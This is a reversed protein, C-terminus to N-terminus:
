AWCRCGAAPEWGAGGDAFAGSESLSSEDSLKGRDNFAGRRCRVAALVRGSVLALRALPVRMAAPEVLGRELRRASLPRSDPAPRRGACRLQPAPPAECRGLWIGSHRQRGAPLSGARRAQRVRRIRGHLPQARHSGHDPSGARRCGSPQRHRNRRGSCSFDFQLAAQGRGGVCALRRLHCCVGKMVPSEPVATVGFSRANRRSALGQPSISKLRFM